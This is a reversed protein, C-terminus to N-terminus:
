ANGETITYSTITVTQANAINTNNLNMDNGSTGVTGQVVCVTGTNDFLRYFTVTTGAGAAAQGVLTITAGCSLTGTAASMGSAAFTGTACLTNSGIIATACTAPESGNYLSLTLNGTTGLASIIGSAENNRATVSLQIAM